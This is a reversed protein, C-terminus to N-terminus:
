QRLILNKLHLLIQTKQNGNPDGFDNALQRDTLAFKDTRQKHRNRRTTQWIVTDITLRQASGNKQGKLQKSPWKEEQQATQLIQWCFIM